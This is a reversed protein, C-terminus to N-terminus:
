QVHGTVCNMLILIYIIMIFTLRIAYYMLKKTIDESHELNPNKGRNIFYFTM